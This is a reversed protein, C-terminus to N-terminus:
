FNKLENKQGKKTKYFFDPNKRIENISIKIKAELGHFSISPNKKILKNGNFKKQQFLFPCSWFFLHM